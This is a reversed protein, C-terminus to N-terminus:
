IKKAMLIPCLQIIIANWIVADEYIKAVVHVYKNLRM